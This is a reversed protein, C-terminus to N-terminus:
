NEQNLFAILFKLLHIWTPYVSKIARSIVYSAAHMTWGSSFHYNLCCERLSEDFPPSVFSLRDLKHIDQYFEKNDQMEICTRVRIESALSENGQIAMSLSNFLCNGNGSVRTPIIDSKGFVKSAVKDKKMTSVFQFPKGTKMRKPLFRMFIAELKLAKEIDGSRTAIGLRELSKEFDFDGGATKCCKTCIYSLPCKQLYNFDKNSLGECKQHFWKDCTDCAINNNGDCNKHCTDCPYEVTDSMTTFILTQPPPLTFHSNTKVFSSLYFKFHSSFLCLYAFCFILLSM